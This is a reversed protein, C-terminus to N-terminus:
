IGTFRPEPLDPNVTNYTYICKGDKINHSSCSSSQLYTTGAYISICNSEQVRISLLNDYASTSSSYSFFFGPSSRTLTTPKIWAAITLETIPSNGDAIDVRIYDDM